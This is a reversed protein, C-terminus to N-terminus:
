SGSSQAQPRPAPAAKPPKAAKVRAPAKKERTTSTKTVKVGLVEAVQVLQSRYDELRLREEELQLAYADLEARTLGTSSTPESGAGSSAEQGATDVDGSGQEAAVTDQATRVALVGVLGVATATALGLSIIRQPTSDLRRNPRRPQSPQESPSTM